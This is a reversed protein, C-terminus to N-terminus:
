RGSGTKALSPSGRRRVAICTEQTPIALSIKTQRPPCDIWFPPAYDPIPWYGDSRECVVAPLFIHDKDDQNEKVRCGKNPNEPSFSKDNLLVRLAVYVGEVPDASFVRDAAPAAKNGTWEHVHTVLPYTSLALMGGLSNAGRERMFLLDSFFLVVRGDPYSRHLFDALFLQDLANSGRVAIYTARHDRLEALIQMLVAEQALPTQNGGYSRITDHIRGSTDSLDRPLNRRLDSIQSSAGSQTALKSQYAQRLASIDRPYYLNLLASSCPKEQGKEKRGKIERISEKLGTRGYATEDESIIAIRGAAGGQETCMYNFFRRLIEDDNQVFSHFAIQSFAGQFSKAISDSSVTGSYIALRANSNETSLGLALSAKEDSLLQQLSAISGSFTPGLIAVKRGPPTTARLAQVWALANRFQERHIGGTAEEGVVFVALGKCYPSDHCPSRPEALPAAKDTSPGPGGGRFLILGPQSEKEATEQNAKKQDDFLPFSSKEDGWPLWSSDFDYKEDQAAEQIAVAIEDFLLSLHTHVPDPALAIVFRLDASQAAPWSNRTGPQAPDPCVFDQPPVSGLFDKLIDGLGRCAAMDQYHKEKSTASAGAKTVAAEQSDNGGSKSGTQLSIGIVAAAIALLAVGGVTRQKKIEM